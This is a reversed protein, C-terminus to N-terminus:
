HTKRLGQKESNVPVRLPSASLAVEGQKNFSFLTRSVWAYFDHSFRLILTAFLLVVLTTKVKRSTPTKAKIVKSFFIWALILGVIGVLTGINGLV